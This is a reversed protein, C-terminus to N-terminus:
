KKVDHTKRKKNKQLQRMREVHAMYDDLQAPTAGNEIMARFVANGKGNSSDDDNDEEANSNNNSSSSSNSSTPISRRRKTKNPRKRTPMTSAQLRQRRPACPVSVFGVIFPKCQDATDRQGPCIYAHYRTSKEKWGIMIATRGCPQCVPATCNIEERTMNPRNYRYWKEGHYIRTGSIDNRRVHDWGLAIAEADDDDDDDGQFPVLDSEVDDLTNQQVRRCDVLPMIIDDDDDDNPVAVNAHTQFQRVPMVNPHDHHRPQPYEDFYEAVTAHIKNVPDTSYNARLATRVRIVDRSTWDRAQQRRDPTNSASLGILHRPVVSMHHLMNAKLFRIMVPRNTDAYHTLATNVVPIMRPYTESLVKSFALPYLEMDNDGDFTYWIWLNRDAKRRLDKIITRSAVVIGNDSCKNWKREQTKQQYQTREEDTQCLHRNYLATLFAYCRNINSFVPYKSKMNLETRFVKCVMPDCVIIACEDRTTSPVCLAINVHVYQTAYGPTLVPIRFVGMQHQALMDFNKIDICKKSMISRVRIMQIRDPLLSMVTRFDPKRMHGSNRNSIRGYEAQNRRYQDSTKDTKKILKKKGNVLKTEVAFGPAIANVMASTTTFHAYGRGERPMTMAPFTTRHHVIKQMTHQDM